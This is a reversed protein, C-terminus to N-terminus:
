RNGKLWRATALDADAKARNGTRLYAAGRNYYALAYTPDLQIAETFDSIAKEHNGKRGYAAGRNCYDIASNPDLRIV